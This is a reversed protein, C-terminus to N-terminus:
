EASVSHPTVPPTKGGERYTTQVGESTCGNIKMVRCVLPMPPNAPKHAMSASQHTQGTHHYSVMMGIADLPRGQPSFRCTEPHTIINTGAQHTRQPQLIAWSPRV